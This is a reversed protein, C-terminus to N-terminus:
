YKPAMAYRMFLKDRYRFMMVPLPHSVGSIRGQPWVSGTRGSAEELNWTKRLTKDATMGVQLRNCELQKM